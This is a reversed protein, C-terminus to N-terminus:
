EFFSFDREFKLTSLYTGVYALFTCINTFISSVFCSCVFIQIKLEHIPPPPTNNFTYTQLSLSLPKFDRLFGLFTNVVDKIPPGMCVKAFIM